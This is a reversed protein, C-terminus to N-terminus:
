SASTSAKNGSLILHTGSHQFLVTKFCEVVEPDFQTGTCQELEEFAKWPPMGSRYPRDTTMADYADAVALIRAGLPMEGLPSEKQKDQDFYQHHARVLPIADGLVSAVSSLIQAGRETHSDMLYKEEHSLSAAKDILTTSIDVKGIDHLLAAVKINEVEQPPLMMVEALETAYNAVRVSHDQTYTDSSEIYKSLIELIGLYASKLQAVKKENEEHLHGVIISCLILFSGWAILNVYFSTVSQTPQFSDHNIIVYFLVATVSFISTLMAKRKGLVFGAILAPLYFLNLLALKEAVFYNLAFISLLIFLVIMQEFNKFTYAKLRKMTNNGTAMM